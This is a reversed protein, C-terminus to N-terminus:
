AARRTRLALGALGLALLLAAGPEPVVSVSINDLAFQGNNQTPVSCAPGIAACSRFEISILDTMGLVQYTTFPFSSGNGTAYAAPAGILSGDSRTGFAWLQTTQTSPPDLPVFAASLGDLNFAQGDSRTLRLRGDNSAFYFQTTNGTPAQAGLAAATDILGFDILTTLTYSGQSFSDGPMYVGALNDPEFDIVDAHATQALPALLAAAFLAGFAPRWPNKKM